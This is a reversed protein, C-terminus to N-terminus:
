PILSKLQQLHHFKDKKLKLRRAYLRPLETSGDRLACARKLPLDTYEESHRLKYGVEGTPKYLLARIDSVVSEGAKQGPRIRKFNSVM